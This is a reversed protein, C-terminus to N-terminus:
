YTSSTVRFSSSVVSCKVRNGQLSKQKETEGSTEERQCFVQSASWFVTETPPAAVLSVLLQCSLPQAFQLGSSCASSTCLICSIDGWMNVFDQRAGTLECLFFVTPQTSPFGWCCKVVLVKVQLEFITEFSVTSIQIVALCWCMGRVHVHFPWSM